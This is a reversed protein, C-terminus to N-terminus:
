GFLNIALYNDDWPTFSAQLAFIVITSLDLCIRYQLTFVHFVVFINESKAYNVQSPMTPMTKRSPM